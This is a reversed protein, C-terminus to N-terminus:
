WCCHSWALVSCNFHIAENHMNFYLYLVTQMPPPSVWHSGQCLGPPSWTTRAVGFLPVFPGQITVAWLSNLWWRDAKSAHTHNAPWSVTQCTAFILSNALCTWPAANTGSSCGLKSFSKLMAFILLPFLGFLCGSAIHRPQVHRGKTRLAMMCIERLWLLLTGCESKGRLVAPKRAFISSYAM